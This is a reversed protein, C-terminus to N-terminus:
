NFAQGGKPSYKTLAANLAEAAGPTRVTGKILIEKATVKKENLEGRVAWRWPKWGACRKLGGFLWGANRSVSKIGQPYDRTLGTSSV